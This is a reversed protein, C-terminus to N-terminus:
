ARADLRPAAVPDRAIQLECVEEAVEHDREADAHEVQHLHRKVYRPIPREDERGRVEAVGRGSEELRHGRPRTQPVLIEARARILNAHQVQEDQPRGAYPPVGEGARVHGPRRRGSERQKVVRGHHPHDIEPERQADRDPRDHTAVM